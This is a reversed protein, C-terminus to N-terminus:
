ERPRDPFRGHRLFAACAAAAETSFLLGSHSAHVVCHGALRPSRTEALAVSGDHPGDFRRVVAGLGHPADGAIMGVCCDGWDCAGAALAERACGLLVRGGPLRAVSAATPSPSLPSGLCVIRRVAGPAAAAARVALLGGLSHGVLHAPPGGRIAELLRRVCAEHAERVSGYGFREPAFGAARLRRALPAMSWPGMWLGHILLVRSAGAAAEASM